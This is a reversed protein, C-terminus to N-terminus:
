CSHLLIEIEFENREHGLPLGLMRHEIRYRYYFLTKLRALRSRTSRSAVLKFSGVFDGAFPSLGLDLLKRKCLNDDHYGDVELGLCHLNNEYYQSAHEM